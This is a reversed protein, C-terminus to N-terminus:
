VPKTDLCTKYGLLRWHLSIAKTTPQRIDPIGWRLPKWVTTRYSKWEMVHKVNPPLSHPNAPNPRGVFWPSCILWWLNVWRSLIAVTESVINESANEHIFLKTNQDFNWQLKNRLTWNFIVLCQNSLAKAAFLRCAMIQVLASGNWQRM